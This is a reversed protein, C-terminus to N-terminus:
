IKSDQDLRKKLEEFRKREPDWRPLRNLAYEYATLADRLRGTRAFIDGLSILYEANNRSAALEVTRLIIRNYIVDDSIKFQRIIHKNQEINRLFIFSLSDIYVPVWKDGDLLRFLLPPIYGEVSLPSLFVINVKYHDLLKEWLPIKGPTLRESTISNVADIVWSYESAVTYNLKRSDIFTKKWPYLKWEIFGGYAYENFINGEIKNERIFNVASEPVTIGTATKFEFKGHRFQAGMFILTSCLATIIMGYQMKGCFRESVKKEILSTILVDTENAMLMIGVVAYFIIYRSSRMSMYWFGSLLMIHSVDLKRNRLLLIFPFLLVVFVHSYDVPRLKNLYSYFPSVSEQIGKVFVEYKPSFAVLFANWGNPNIFSVIIALATAGFFLMQEDKNYRSKKTIMKLGECFMFVMVIVDGLIFGGHMNAWLLMVPALFFINRDKKDKFNELIFLTLATFLISFLVPREGTSRISINFLLFVSIFSTIFSAGSKQIGWYAVLLTLVLLIARLFIIGEAGYRNFIAYFLIQTLWYQKLILNEREPFFYDRNEPMNSSFSFVDQHPIHGETLIYRGTAVHWWFDYDWLNIKLFFMFFSAFLLLMIIAKLPKSNIKM